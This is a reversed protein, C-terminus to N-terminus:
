SAKEVPEIRTIPRAAAAPRSRLPADSRVDRHMMRAVFDQQPFARPALSYLGFRLYGEVRRLRCQWGLATSQDGSLKARMLPIGFATAGHLLRAAMFAPMLWRGREELDRRGLTVGHRLAVRELYEVSLRNVPIVHAVFADPAYWAEMGSTVLRNFFETDEGGELWSENFGVLQDFVRRHVLINGTTPLFKRTYRAPAGVREVEGLLKRCYPSLHPPAVHDYALTRGGGVCLARRTEAFRWLTALWDPPALQDDDFFAIWDGQAERLGRNRAFPLGQRAEYAYRVTPVDQGAFEDVARRTDDASANDVVVIEVDFLNNTRQDVLSALARTLSASRNFTTVIVSILPPRGAGRGEEPAAVIQQQLHPRERDGDLRRLEREFSLLAVLAGVANGILMAWAAGLLGFYNTLPVACAATAAFTLGEIWVNPRPRDIASLGNTASLALSTALTGLGLLLTIARAEPHRHGDALQYLWDGAVAYVVCIAGLMGCYVWSTQIVTRRVAPAGGHHFAYMTRPRFYNNVGRIFIYSLGVLTVCIALVGAGAAGLSAAVIWPMIFRSGQGFLRAVLLWRSFSWIELWHAKLISREITWRDHWQYAWWLCAILSSAGFAFYATEVGLTGTQWLAALVFVQVVLTMADVIAANAIDFHAFSISRALERFVVPPTVLATALLASAMPGSATLWGTWGLVAAGIGALAIVLAGVVSFWLSFVVTSGLLSRQELASRRHVGALYGTEILREHVVWLLGIGTFAMAYVGVQAESCVRALLVMRLFTAGSSIAQSAITLVGSRVAARGGVMLAAGPFGELAPEPQASTEELKDTM